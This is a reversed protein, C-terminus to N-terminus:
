RGAPDRSPPPSLAAAIQAALRTNNRVLTKNVQLSAGGTNIRFYELLFPTIAKGRIAQDRAAALGDHLVRGHLDPDLQDEVPLPNGIVIGGDHM